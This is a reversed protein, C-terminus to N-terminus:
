VFCFEPEEKNHESCFAGKATDVAASAKAKFTTVRGNDAVGKFFVQGMGLNLFRWMRYSEAPDNAPRSHILDIFEDPTWVVHEEANAEEWTLEV